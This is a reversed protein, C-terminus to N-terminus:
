YSCLFSVNATTELFSTIEIHVLPAQHFCLSIQNLIQPYKWSGATSPTNNGFSAVSQPPHYFISHWQIKLSNNISCCMLQWIHQSILQLEQRNETILFMAEISM